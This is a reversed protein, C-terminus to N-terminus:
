SERVCVYCDEQRMCVRNYNANVKWSGDIIANVSPDGHFNNPSETSMM